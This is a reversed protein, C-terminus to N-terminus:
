GGGAQMLKRAVDLLRTFDGGVYHALTPWYVLLMFVGALSKIPASAFSVQLNPAFAGLMAFGFDILILPILVPGGYVVIHWFLEGFRKLVEEFQGREFPPALSWAPWAGYSEILIRALAVFLGAQIMVLVTAQVLMGGLASADRDLSNNNSQIQIPSRQADLISGVSQVAWMPMSLLVGLLGGIWVEKLILMVALLLDPPTDQVYEYTPLAAPAAFALAVANRVFGQLTQVGFGPVIRMCVLARPMVLAATALAAHVDILLSPQM